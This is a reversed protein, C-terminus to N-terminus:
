LFVLVALRVLPAACQATADRGGAQLKPLPLHAATIGRPRAAGSRRTRDALRARLAIVPPTLTVWREANRTKGPAVYLQGEDWRIDEWRLRGVESTRLAAFAGFVLWRLTVVDAAALLASLQAVTLIGPPLTDTVPNPHGPPLWGARRAWHLAARLTQRVNARSRACFPLTDLAAQVAITTFDRLSTSTPAVGQPPM